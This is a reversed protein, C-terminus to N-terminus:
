LQQRAYAGFVGAPLGYGTNRGPDDFREQRARQHDFRVAQVVRRADNGRLRVADQQARPVYGIDAADRICLGVAQPLNIALALREDVGLALLRQTVFRHKEAVALHGLGAIGCGYLDEARLLLYAFPIAQDGGSRQYQLVVRRMRGAREDLSAASM